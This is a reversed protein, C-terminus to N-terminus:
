ADVDFIALVGYHDSVPNEKFVVECSRRKVTGAGQHKFFIYDVQQRYHPSQGEAKGYAVDNLASVALPNEVQDWTICPEKNGEWSDYMHEKILEYTGCTTGGHVGLPTCNLDGTLLSLGEFNTLQALMEKAQRVRGRGVPQSPLQDLHSTAVRFPFQKDKVELVGNFLLYGRPRVWNLYDYIWEKFLTASTSLCRTNAKRVFLLNGSRNGIVFGTMQAPNKWLIGAVLLASLAGGIKINPFGLKALLLWPTFFIGWILALLAVSGTSLRGHFNVCTYEDSFAKRFEDAVKM